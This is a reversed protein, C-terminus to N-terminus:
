SLWLLPLLQLTQQRLEGKFDRLREALHLDWDSDDASTQQSDVVGDQALTGSLGSM